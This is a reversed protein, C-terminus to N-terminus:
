FNFAEWRFQILHGERVRFEKFLAFDVNQRGLM